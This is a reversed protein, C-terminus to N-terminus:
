KERVSQGIKKKKKKEFDVPNFSNILHAFQALKVFIGGSIYVKVLFLSVSLCVPCIISVVGHCASQQSEALLALFANNSFLLIRTFTVKEMKLM